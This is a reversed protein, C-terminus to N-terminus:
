GRRPGLLSAEGANPNAFVALLGPSFQGFEAPGRARSRSLAMVISFGDFIIINPSGAFAVIGACVAALGTGIMINITQAYADDRAPQDALLRLSPTGAPMDILTRVAVDDLRRLGILDAMWPM